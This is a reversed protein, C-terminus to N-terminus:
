NGEDSQEKKAHDVLFDLKANNRAINKENEYHMSEGEKVAAELTHVEIQTVPHQTFVYLAIAIFYGLM